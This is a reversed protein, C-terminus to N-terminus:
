SNKKYGIIYYFIEILHKLLDGESSYILLSPSKNTRTCLKRAPCVNIIVCRKQHKAEKAPEPACHAPSPSYPASPAVVNNPPM